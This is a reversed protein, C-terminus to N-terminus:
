SILRVQNLRVPVSQGVPLRVRLGLRLRVRRVAHLTRIAAPQETAANRRPTPSPLAPPEAM